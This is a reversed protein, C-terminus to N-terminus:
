ERETDGDYARSGSSSSIITEALLNNCFTIETASNDRALAKLFRRSSNCEITIKLKTVLRADKHLIPRTLQVNNHICDHIRYISESESIKFNM